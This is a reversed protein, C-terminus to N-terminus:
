MYRQTDRYRRETRRQTHGIIQNTGRTEGIKFTWGEWRSRKTASANEWKEWKVSKMGPFLLAQGLHLYRLGTDTSATTSGKKIVSAVIKFANLYLRRPGVDCWFLTQGCCSLDTKWHKFIEFSYSSSSSSAAFNSNSKSTHNDSKLGIMMM